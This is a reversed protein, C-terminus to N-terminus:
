QMVQAKGKELKRPTTSRTVPSYRTDWNKIKKINIKTLQSPPTFEPDAPIIPDIKGAPISYIKARATVKNKAHTQRPSLAGCNRMKSNVTSAYFYYQFVCALLSLLLSKLKYPLAVYFSFSHILFPDVM